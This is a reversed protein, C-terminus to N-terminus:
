QPAGAGAVPPALRARLEAVRADIKAQTLVGKEVLITCISAIWREYYSMRDYDAPALSEIGRRLEDVGLLRRGAGGLLQYIADVEKEWHAYDHESRDIPGAERGGMDHHARTM